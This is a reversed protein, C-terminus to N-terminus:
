GKGQDEKGDGVQGKRGEKREREKRGGRLLLNGGNRSHAPPVSIPRHEGLSGPRRGAAM